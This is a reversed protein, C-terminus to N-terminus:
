PIHAAGDTAVTSKEGTAIDTATVSVGPLPTTGTRVFGHIVGSHVSSPASPLSQASAPEGGPSTQASSVAEGASVLAVIVTLLVVLSSLHHKGRHM